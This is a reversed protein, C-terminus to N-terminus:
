VYSTNYNKILLEPKQLAIANLNNNISYQASYQICTAFSYLQAIEENNDYSLLWRCPNNKLAEALKKHNFNKHLDGNNGYLGEKQAGLYPPDLYIFTNMDNNNIVYSYDFNSILVDSLIAHLPMIRAISYMNFKHNYSDESYRGSEGLGSFTIRNLIYFIAARDVLSLDNKLAEKLAGYLIKGGMLRTDRKMILIERILKEPNDRVAMWFSYVNENLDNIWCKVHPFLQRILIFASGGGVFPERFENFHKPFYTAIDEIVKSKGGPYRLCTKIM